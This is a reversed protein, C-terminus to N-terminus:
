VTFLKKLEKNFKHLPGGIPGRGGHKPKKKQLLRLLCMADAPSAYCPPRWAPSEREFAEPAHPSCFLACCAAAHQPKASHQALAHAITNSFFCHLKMCCTLAPSM